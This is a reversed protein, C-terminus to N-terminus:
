RWGELPSLLKGLVSSNLETAPKVWILVEVVNWSQLSPILCGCGGVGSVLFIFREKILDFYSDTLLDITIFLSIGQVWHLTENLVLNLALRRPAFTSTDCGLTQVPPDMRIIICCKSEAQWLFPVQMFQMIRRVWEGCSHVSFPM